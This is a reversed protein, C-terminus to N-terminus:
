SLNEWLNNTREKAKNTRCAWPNTKKREATFICPQDFLQVHKYKYKKVQGEDPFISFTPKHHASLM